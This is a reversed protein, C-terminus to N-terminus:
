VFSAHPPIAPSSYDAGTSGYASAASSTVHLELDNPIGDLESRGSRQPIVYEADRRKKRIVFAVVGAVAILAFWLGAMGSSGDDNSKSNNHSSQAKPIKKSGAGKHTSHSNSGKHTNSTPSAADVGEIEPLPETTGGGKPSSPVIPASYDKSKACNNSALCVCDDGDYSFENKIVDVWLDRLSQPQHSSHKFSGSGSHTIFKAPVDLSLMIDQIATVQLSVSHLRYLQENKIGYPSVLAVENADENTTSVAGVALNGDEMGQIIDLITKGKLGHAIEVVSDDEPVVGYVDNMTATGSFLDYQVSRDLYQVFVHQETPKSSGKNSGRGHTSTVTHGLRGFYGNPIVTRLHLGHLSDGEDLAGVVRFHRPICGLKVNGGDHEVTRAIYESLEEGEDTQYQEVSMNLTQAISAKNANIFEHKFSNPRKPDYSIYGITNLFAGAEFSSSYDDLQEYSRTHTHGTIFQIVMDPGVLSRLKALILAVLDDQVDMHALVLISDFEFGADDLFLSKFWEEDLTNEVTEVTVVSDKMEYLFGLALINSQRGKLIVYNSGLPELKDDKVQVNSTVLKTGWEDFLGGPERLKTLSDVSTLEHNGVGILDFPMREIIGPLYNPPNDGLITGHIFDGNNVLYVDEGNLSDKYRQFFSLVDGVIHNTLYVFLQQLLGRYSVM